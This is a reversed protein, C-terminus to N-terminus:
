GKTRRLGGAPERPRPVAGPLRAEGRAGDRRVPLGVRERPVDARGAPDRGARLHRAGAPQRCLTRPHAPADLPAFLRRGEPARDNREHLVDRRSRERRAGPRAVCRSRRRRDAGRLRGRRRDRARDGDRRRVPRPATQPQPRRDGRPRRCADRHVRSRESAPAPQAHPPRLRRVPHRPVGRPAGPPELLPDRCPRRTRARARAAGGRAGAGATGGRRADVPPLEPRAHRTVIEKDGYYLEARRLLTPLTLQTDMMLGNVAEVEGDGAAERSGRGVRGARGARRLRRQGRRGAARSGRRHPERDNPADDVRRARARGGPRGAGRRRLRVDGNRPPRLLARGAPRPLPEAGRVAASLRSANVGFATVNLAKRVKRFGYGEGLDDLTAITYGM